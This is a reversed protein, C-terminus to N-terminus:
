CVTLTPLNGAIFNPKEVVLEDVTSTVIVVPLFSIRLPPFTLPCLFNVVIFILLMM